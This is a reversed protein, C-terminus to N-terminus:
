SSMLDSAALSAVPLSQDQVRPFLRYTHVTVDTGTIKLIV